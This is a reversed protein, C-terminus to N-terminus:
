ETAAPCCFKGSRILDIIAGAGLAPKAKGKAPAPSPAGPNSPSSPNSPGSTDDTPM